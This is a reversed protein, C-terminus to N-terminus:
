SNTHLHHLRTSALRPMKDFLMLLLGSVLSPSGPQIDGHVTILTLSTSAYPPLRKADMEFCRTDFFDIASMLTPALALTMQVITTCLPAISVGARIWRQIFRRGSEASPGRIQLMHPDHVVDRAARSGPHPPVPATGPHYGRGVQPKLSKIGKRVGGEAGPAPRPDYGVGVHQLFPGRQTSPAEWLPRRGSLVGCPAPLNEEGTSLFGPLAPLKSVAAGACPHKRDAPLGPAPLAGAAHARKDLPFDFM